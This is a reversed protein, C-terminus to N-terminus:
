SKIEIKMSIDLATVSHTLAGISIFDVGTRAVARANYLNIGGSAELPIRGGSLGVAETMLEIPMNDLMIRDVDQVLAQQVEALTRTEVEVAYKRGYQKRARRVAEAISGAVDIHNDKILIMDYLGLRHNVGGGVYVAYKDLTRQGPATKRTDTIKASTGKVADVYKATLTAIGSMRQLFNLALREGTLLTLASGQVVALSDGKKVPMGEEVTMNFSIEPDIELFVMCAVPLGAIVGDSKAIIKAKAQREAPIVAQTTKDGDGVDEKLGLRVIQRIAEQNLLM